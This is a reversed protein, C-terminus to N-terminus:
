SYPLVLCFLVVCWVLVSSLVVDSLVPCSLVVFSLVVCRLMLCSPLLCPLVVNHLVKKETKLWANWSLQMLFILSCPWSWSWSWFWSRSRSSRSRSACVLWNARFCLRCYLRFRHSSWPWAWSSSWSFALIFIVFFALIFALIIGLCNGSARSIIMHLRLCWADGSSVWSVLVWVLPLHTGQESAKAEALYPHSLFLSLVLSL